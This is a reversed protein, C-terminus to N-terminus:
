LFVFNYPVLPVSIPPMGLRALSFRTGLQQGDELDASRGKNRETARDTEDEGPRASTGNKMEQYCMIDTELPAGIPRYHALCPTNNSNRNAENLCFSRYVTRKNRGQIYVTCPVRYMPVRFRHLTYGSVSVEEFALREPLKSARCSPVYVRCDSTIAVLSNGRTLILNRHELNRELM